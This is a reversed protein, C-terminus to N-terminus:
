PTSRKPRAQQQTALEKTVCSACHPPQSPRMPVFVRRLVFAVAGLAVCSVVITQFM